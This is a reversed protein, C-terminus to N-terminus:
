RNRNRSKEKLVELSYEDVSLGLREARENETIQNHIDVLTLVGDCAEKSANIEHELLLKLFMVKEDSLELQVKM